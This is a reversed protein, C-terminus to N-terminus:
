RLWSGPSSRMAARAIPWPPSAPTGRAKTVVVHVEDRLTEGREIVRRDNERFGAAILPPFLDFDTRGAPDDDEALGISERIAPSMAVYRYDICLPQDIGASGVRLREAM